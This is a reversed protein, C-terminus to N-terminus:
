AEEKATLDPIDQIEFSFPKFASRNLGRDFRKIFRRTKAAFSRACSRSRVGTGALFLISTLGVNAGDWGRRKAARNAARGVPCLASNCEIGADFDKQTVYLRM